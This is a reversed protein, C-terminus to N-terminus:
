ELIVLVFIYKQSINFRDIILLMVQRAKEKLRLRGPTKKLHDIGQKTNDETVSICRKTDRPRNEEGKRYISIVAKVISSRCRAKYSCVFLTNNGGQTNNNSYPTSSVRAKGFGVETGSM